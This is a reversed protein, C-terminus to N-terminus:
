RTRHVSRRMVSPPNGSAVRGSPSTTNEFQSIQHRRSPRQENGHDQQGQPYDKGEDGGNGAPPHVGREGGGGNEDRLADDVRLSAVARRKVTEPEPDM